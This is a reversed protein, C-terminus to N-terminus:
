KQQYIGFVMLKNQVVDLIRVLGGEAPGTLTM